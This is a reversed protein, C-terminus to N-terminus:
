LDLKVQKNIVEINSSIIRSLVNSKEEKRIPLLFYPYLVFSLRFKKNLVGDPSINEAPDLLIFAGLHIGLVILDLYKHNVKDNVVFTGTPSPTFSGNLISSQFYNGISLIFSKLSIVSSVVDINADPHTSWLNLYRKSIQFLLESQFKIFVEPLQNLNNVNLIIQDIIGIILRPNGDAIKCINEWGYVFPSKIKRTRRRSGKGKDNSSLYFNRYYVISKIKRHIESDELRDASIPKLLDIGKGVLYEAFSSDKKALQSFQDVLISKQNSLDGIKLDNYLSHEIRLFREYESNGLLNEPDIEQDFKKRLKSIILTKCFEEWEKEHRNTYLWLLIPSFDSGTSPLHEKSTFELIPISTLKFIFDQDKSRFFKFLKTQLWTPALELEDFCLAWKIPRTKSRIVLSNSNGFYQEFAKCAGRLPELFEQYYYDPYEYTIIEVRRNRTKNILVNVSDLRNYFEQEIAYLSSPTSDPLHWIRKLDDIFLKINSNVEDSPITDILSVFTKITQIFVNTNVLVNPVLEIFESYKSFEKKFLDVEMKWQVDTPIYISIFPLDYILTSNNIKQYELLAEITLMKLLTTKGCGRPGMLLSNRNVLLEDFKKYNVFGQAVQRLTLNRANFSDFLTKYENM